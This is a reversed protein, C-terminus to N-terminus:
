LRKTPEGAGAIGAYHILKLDEEDGEMIVVSCNPIRVHEDSILSLNSVIASLVYGHSVIIVTENQHKSAIKKLAPLARATIEECSEAGHSLKHKWQEQVPLKLKQEISEKFRTRFETITMGEIDGYAAERLGTELHVNCKHFTNIADATQKARLLPSSYIAAVQLRSLENGVAHAQQWGVEDLPRDMSGQLRGQANWDTRGHRVIYLTSVKKEKM